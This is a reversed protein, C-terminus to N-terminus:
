PTGHEQEQQHGADAQDGGQGRRLALLAARVQTASAGSTALDRLLAQIEDWGTPGAPLADWELLGKYFYDEPIRTLLCLRRALAPNFGTRLHLIHDKAAAGVPLSVTASFAPLRCSSGAPQVAM